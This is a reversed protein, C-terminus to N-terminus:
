VMSPKQHWNTRCCSLSPFSRIPKEASTSLDARLISELKAISKVAVELVSYIFIYLSSFLFIGMPDRWLLWVHGTALYTLFRGLSVCGGNVRRHVYYRRGNSTTCGRGIDLRMGQHKIECIGLLQWFLLQDKQVGCWKEGAIYDMRVDPNDFADVHRGRM